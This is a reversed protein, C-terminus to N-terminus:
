FTGQKYSPGAQTGSGLLEQIPRKRSVYKQAVELINEPVAGPQEGSINYIIQIARDLSQSCEQLAAVLQQEREQHFYLQDHHRVSM